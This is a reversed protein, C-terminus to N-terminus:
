LRLSNKQLSNELWSAGYFISTPDWRPFIDPNKSIGTPDWGYESPIGTPDWRSFHRSKKFDRQSGLLIGIPDWRPFIDPYKSVGIADWHM